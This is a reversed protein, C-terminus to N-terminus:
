ALSISITATVTIIMALFLIRIKDSTVFLGSLLCKGANKAALGPGLQYKSTDYAGTPLWGLLVTETVPARVRCKSGVWM